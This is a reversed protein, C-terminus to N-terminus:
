TGAPKLYKAFFVELRGYFDYRNEIKRWGHGEGEYVVWEPPRGAARLGDRMKTAHEIPVRRDDRGHIILLPSRIEGARVVPSAAKLLAADKVPDGLIETLGYARWERPLDSTWADDFMLLPDAVAAWAAGCRYKDPYRVLSMLTSYGGYSGGAICVRGGNVMGKAAAWDVADAVDDQMTDGWHKWGAKAHARGYGTSGRFEPEIVAYGRSAFFQAEPRWYWEVGRVFPGGHVLAIAPWGGAPAKGRPVTIWVPLDRGDRAKIRHLDLTAMRAPDIAPHSAGISSWADTKPRYIWFSGPDQDSYSHVLLVDPDACTRCSLRNVHGPMRKDVLAQLEKMRPTLWVTSEADTEVRIGIVTGDGRDLVFGGEFDFGPTSVLPADGPKGTAFDFRKVVEYGADGQPVTVFLNGEADIFRPRFPTEVARYTALVSWASQGPKRWWLTEMGDKSSAVARPEGRQDFWWSKSDPPQDMSITTAIGTVVDLRKVVVRDLEGVSNFFGEGIVVDNGGGRPVYLMEHTWELPPRGATQKREMQSPHAYILQRQETGDRRISFLGGGFKQRMAEIQLDTVTFVLRDDNVWDFSQIDANSFTAVVVPAQKGDSDVVALTKRGTGAYATIALWRGSPSLQAEDIRPRSFFDEISPPADAAVVPVVACALVLALLFRM